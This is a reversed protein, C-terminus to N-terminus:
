EEEVVGVRTRWMAEKLKIVQKWTKSEWDEEEGEQAKTTDPLFTKEEKRPASEMNPTKPHRAPLPPPVIHQKPPAPAPSQTTAVPPSSITPEAPKIDVAQEPKPEPEPQGEREEVQEETTVPPLDLEPEPEERLSRLMELADADMKEDAQEPTDEVKREIPSAEVVTPTPPASGTPSSAGSGSEGAAIMSARNRAAARRPIPPPTPKPSNLNVETSKPGTPTGPNATNGGEGASGPTEPVTQSDEKQETGESAIAPQDLPDADEATPTTFKESKNTSDVSIISTTRSLQVDPPLLGSVQEKEMAADAEAGPSQEDDKGPLPSKLELPAGLIEKEDSVVVADSEKEAGVSGAGVSDRKEVKPSVPPSNTASATSKGWGKAWSSGGGSNSREALKFGLAWGSRKRAPLDPREAGSDNVAAAPSNEKQSPADLVAQETTPAPQIHGDDGLWVVQVIGTRVFRWLECTARLRELCWGTKCLPYSKNEKEKETAGTATSKAIRFIYVSPLNSTSAITNPNPSAMPSSAPSHAAPNSSPSTTTTNFFPKLSFRSSSGSNRQPHLPPPGFHSAAPSPPIINPFVPKGCLSCGIDALPSTSAAIISSASVPEIILDGAIIATSVGRRSLWSLEPAVDLRLTPDHDELSTRALFPQTLLNTVVPPPLTTKASDKIPRLLRLHSIFAVFESYPLHSSLYRRNVTAVQPTTQAPGGATPLSQLHLQMDRVAAEAAALNEETTKLREEAELRGMREQAVM